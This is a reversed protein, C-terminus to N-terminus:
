LIDIEFEIKAGLLVTKYSIIHTFEINEITISSREYHEFDLKVSEIKTENSSSINSQLSVPATNSYYIFVSRKSPNWDNETINEISLQVSCKNTDTPIVSSSSLDFSSNVM